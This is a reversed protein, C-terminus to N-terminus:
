KRSAISQHARTLVYQRRHQPCSLARPAGFPCLALAIPACLFINSSPIPITNVACKWCLHHPYIHEYCITFAAPKAWIIFSTIHTRHQIRGIHITVCIHPDRIHSISKPTISHLDLWVAIPSQYPDNSVLFGSLPCISILTLQAFIYIM